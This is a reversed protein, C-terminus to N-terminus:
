REEEDDPDALLTPGQWQRFQRDWPEGAPLKALDLLLHKAAQIRAPMPMHQTAHIVLQARRHHEAHRIAIKRQAAAGAGNQGCQACRGAVRATEGCYSCSESV